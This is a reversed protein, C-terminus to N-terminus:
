DPEPIPASPYRRATLMEDYTLEYLHRNHWDRFLWDQCTLLDGDACVFHGVRYGGDIVVSYMQRKDLELCDQTVDRAM